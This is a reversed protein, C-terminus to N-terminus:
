KSKRHVLPLEYQLQKRSGNKSGRKVGFANLIRYITMVSVQLTTVIVTIKVGREWADLVAYDRKQKLRGKPQM